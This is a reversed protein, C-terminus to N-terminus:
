PVGDLPEEADEVDRRLGQLGIAELLDEGLLYASLFTVEHRRGSAATGHEELSGAFSLEPREELAKVLAQALSRVSPAHLGHRSDRDQAV